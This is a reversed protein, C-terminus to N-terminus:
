KFKKFELITLEIYDIAEGDFVTDAVFIIYALGIAIVLVGTFLSPILICLQVLLVVIFTVSLFISTRRANISKTTFRYLKNLFKM